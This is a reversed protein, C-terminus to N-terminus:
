HALTAQSAQVKAKVLFLVVASGIVGLVGALIFAGSYSSHQVIVGTVTPGIIGSTNAIGHMLGSASGVYNKPAADQILAWYAPGALQLLGIAATMTTVAVITTDAVGTVAICLSSFFFATVLVVKRSFFRRQTKRYISDIVVGGMAYGIAGILWPLSTIFSMDHASVGRAEVLFTPFWTIFFFLVYNYCFLSLAMALIAPQLIAKWMSPKEGTEPEVVTEHDTERILALEQPSVRSHQEPVSKSKMSWILVWTLGIFMLVVFSVRWGFYYCMMGVFPGSIAGGLPGGAQQIGVATAKERIPFWDYIVKNAVAANPGEGMGFLVRCAFFTWFSFAGATLGCMISWFGMAIALVRKAGYKDALAGGIFNFLAYGISFSSFILGKEVSTLHFEESIFPMAVSLAARDIYNVVYASALMALIVYRYNKFVKM